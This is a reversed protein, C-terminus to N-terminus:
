SSIIHFIITLLTLAMLTTHAKKLKLFKKNKFMVVGVIIAIGMFLLSALGIVMEDDLKLESLYMTLGHFISLLFTLIGIFLHNKGLFKAISICTKKIGFNNIGNLKIIRRIPYIAGTIGLAIIAGWGIFEGIDEWFDDDLSKDDQSQHKEEYNGEAFVQIHETQGYYLVFTLLLLTLLKFYNM